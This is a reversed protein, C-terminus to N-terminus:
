HLSRVDPMGAAARILHAELRAAAHDWTWGELVSSRAAAGMQARRRPSGLLKVVAEAFTGPHRATLYGTEGQRVSESVGGEDVAVVPTGCSMAELVVLGFPENRAAFVFLAATRYLSILQEDTLNRHFEVRVRLAGALERLHDQMRPHGGSGVLALRPRQADPITSLSRLLFEFGKHAELRGVSLVLERDRRNAGPRFHGTDVGLYSVEAPRRYIAQIQSRSYRSNTLVQGAARVRRIDERRLYGDLLTRAPWHVVIRLSEYGSLPAAEPRCYHEYFRRPPEHCYYVSPTNLHRMIAPALAGRMTSALVVDYGDRDIREALQRETAELDGANVYELWDNWFFAFRRAPRPRFRVTTASSRGDGFLETHEPPPDLAFTEVTHRDALRSTLENLARRAGGAPLDHWVAVRM